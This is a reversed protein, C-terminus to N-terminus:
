YQGCYGYHTGIKLANQSDPWESLTIYILRDYNVQSDSYNEVTDSQGSIRASRWGAPERKGLEIDAFCSNVVSEAEEKELRGSILLV